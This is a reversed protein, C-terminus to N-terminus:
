MAILRTSAEPSTPPRPGETELRDALRVAAEAMKPYDEVAARVDLLVRQLDKELEALSVGASTDIEIHTWSEAIEDHGRKGEQLPGVVDWLTGTIDRRVLLQPHIVHFSDLGHRTLEMTISDVLFPMDDTVIDVSGRSEELASCMGGASVQVLARGQPRAAALRVHEAAVGALRSPGAAVLEELPMHRYYADLFGRLDGVGAIATDPAQAVGAAKDLLSALEEDAVDAMEYGWDM